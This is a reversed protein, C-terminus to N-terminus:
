RPRVRWAAAGVHCLHRDAPANHEVKDTHCVTCVQRTWRNIGAAKDGHCQTRQLHAFALAHKQKARDRHCSICSVEPQHHSEHCSECRIERASMAPPQHCTSCEFGANLHSTHPFDGTPHEQPAVPAGGAGEHCRACNMPDIRRHHCANCDAISQSKTGGHQELSTHCDTCDLGAILVHREHDFSRENFRVTQREIGVHCSLCVNETLRPGLDVAPVACPLQGVNVAERVLDPASRLLEDAFTVNHAGKGVRIFEVNEEAQQILSDAVARTRVLASGIAARAAAVVHEVDGLKRDMERQGALLINAYRIGHCSLCTAEGAAQVQEHGAVYWGVRM